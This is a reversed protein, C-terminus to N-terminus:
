LILFQAVAMSTGNFLLQYQHSFIPHQEPSLDELTVVVVVVTAVVSVIITVV